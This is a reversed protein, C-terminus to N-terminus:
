LFNKKKQVTKEANPHNIFAFFLLFFIFHLLIKFKKLFLCFIHLWVTIKKKVVV